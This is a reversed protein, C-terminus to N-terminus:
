KEKGFINFHEIKIDNFKINMNKLTEITIGIDKFDCDWSLLPVPYRQLQAVGSNKFTNGDLGIYPVKYIYAFINPHQRGGILLISNAIIAMADKYGTQPSKIVSLKYKEKLKQALFIDTKASAMFIIPIGKYAMQTAEIIKSMKELSDRNRKLASSGTLTIYNSPLKYKKIKEEIENQKMLPLGYVGDPILKCKKIGIKIALKHSIPERVSIFNCMNYIKSVLNELKQNNNLDITQNISAVTKGKIAALYLLGMFRILHGSKYHIAGEGNFCVHTYPDFINEEINLKKLYKLANKKNNDMLAKTLKSEFYRRLFKIKKFRLEPLNLPHFSARPYTKLLLYKIGNSTAQGGWNLSKFTNIFYAIKM